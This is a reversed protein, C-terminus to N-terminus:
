QKGEEGGPSRKRSMSLVEEVKERMGKGHSGEWYVKGCGRCRMFGPSNLYIFDPVLDRVEEKRSVADILGNCVACRGSFAARSFVLRARIFTLQDFVDDKEVFIVGPLGKRKTLHTDRTLITRQQERAIRVIEKDDIDPYYLVDFGLIRLWKALRGLMADAIFKM